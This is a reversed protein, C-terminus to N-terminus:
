SRLLVVNKSGWTVRGRFMEKRFSISLLFKKCITLFWAIITYIWLGQPGKFCLWKACGSQCTIIITQPQFSRGPGININTHSGWWWSLWCGLLGSENLWHWAPSSRVVLYFHESIFVAIPFYVLDIALALARLYRIDQHSKWILSILDILSILHTIIDNYSLLEESTDHTPHTILPWTCKAIPGLKIGDSTHPLFKVDHGYSVAWTVSMKEVNQFKPGIVNHVGSENWYLKWKIGFLLWKMKAILM